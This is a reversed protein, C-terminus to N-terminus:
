LDDDVQHIQAFNDMIGAVNTLADVRRGEM